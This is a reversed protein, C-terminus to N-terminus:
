NIIFYTFPVDFPAMANTRCFGVRFKGLTPTNIYYATISEITAAVRCNPSVIILSNNSIISSSIDGTNNNGSTITGTGVFYGDGTGSTLIKEASEATGARYAYPISILPLRPTMEADSGVKVALYRTSGDFVNNGIPNVSGLQVSYLGSEVSVPQTESWKETGGVATDYIIFKVYLAPNNILKGSSDRLVGQYNIQNPVAYSISFTFLLFILAAKKMYVM